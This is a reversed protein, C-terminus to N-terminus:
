IYTGRAQNQQLFGEGDRWGERERQLERYIHARRLRGTRDQSMCTMGARGIRTLGGAFRNTGGGRM